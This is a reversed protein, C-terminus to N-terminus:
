ALIRSVKVPGSESFKEGIQNLKVLEGGIPAPNGRDGWFFKKADRVNGFSVSRKSESYSLTGYVEGSETDVAYEATAFVPNGSKSAFGSEIIVIGQEKPSEKAVVACDWVPFGLEAHVYSTFKRKHELLLRVFGELETKSLKEM